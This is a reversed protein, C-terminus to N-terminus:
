TISLSNTSVTCGDFTMSYNVICLSSIDGGKVCTYVVEERGM